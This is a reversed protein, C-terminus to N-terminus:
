QGQDHPVTCKATSTVSNGALDSATATVSYVRDSGSGLRDARLQVTFGGKGDPTIQIDPFKPDTAAIPENSTGTVKFTGPALGSLADAATVIAVTVLKQDVPWLTCSTPMGSITPPTKDEKITLPVSTSLGAGNKATCNLTVGATDNSITTSACGTSSAIGSEPDTVNWTITVASRYWGYTGLTGTIQPIIVPPTADAIIKTTGEPTTKGSEINGVLDRAISYFSYTHGALGTFLATTATVNQQWPSYSGGNDSAYVTYDQVGAGVDSGSWSIPFTTSTQTATLANVHSTPKTADITNFWTPTNTPSNADFTITATNPIVTGTTATSKPMATFFVSGEAGPPLFGALPDTPPQNTSPDLSQFTWTLIGTTTNLSADIKVLLNTIPRLDVTTSFPAISLPIAPPTIVHNPITIPGLSVATLDLNTNLPDTIRVTQAPATATSQNEYYVVYSVPTTGTVYRVGSSGMPGVKDNPDLSAVPTITITDRDDGSNQPPPPQQPSGCPTATAGLGNHCAEVASRTRCFDAAAITFASLANQRQLRLDFYEQSRASMDELIGRVFSVGANIQDGLDRAAPSYQSNKLLQLMTANDTSANAVDLSATQLEQVNTKEDGGYAATTASVLHTIATSIYGEVAVGLTGGADALGILGVLKGVIVGLISAKAGAVIRDAALEALKATTAASLNVYVDFQSKALDYKQLQTLYLSACQSDCVSYFACPLNSGFDAGTAAPLDMLLNLFAGVQFSNAMVLPTARPAFSSSNQLVGSTQLGITIAGSGGAPVSGLAFALVNSTSTPLTGILPQSADVISAVGNPVVVSVISPPSDVSGQNGYTVYFTQQSGIRIKDRGVIRTWLQAAGGQEVTFGGTLTVTTGDPNSIVINRVGPAAGTLDFSATLVSPTPVTSNNGVIDIGIGTLKITAGDQFGAGIIKVTVTGATGGRSPLAQEIHVGSSNVGNANTLAWSDNLTLLNGEQGGFLILRNLTSDYAVAHSNRTIPTSGAIPLQQWTSTGSRIANQLVWVDNVDTLSTISTYGGMVILRDSLPDYVSGAYERQLQPGTVSQLQWTPTASVANANNLVWVDSLNIPASGSYTFGGYVIFSNTNPDYGARASARATPAGVVPPQIWTPTGGLGNANTLVWFDNMMTCPCVATGQAAEGGFVLLRNSQADYVVNHWRRPIPATGTTTLRTWSPPGGIGDANSLVWVDNYFASGPANNQGGYIILRDSGPDYASGFCCRRGPGGPSDMPLLQTWSSPGTGNANSLVWVDNHFTNAPTHVSYGGFLIARNSNPNYSLSSYIRGVPAAGTTPTTQIWTQGFLLGSQVALGAVTVAVIRRAM